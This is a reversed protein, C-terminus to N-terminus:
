GTGPSPATFGALGGLGLRQEIAAIQSVGLEFGDGRFQEREIQEFEESTERLDHAPMSKKWAQFIVTDEIATHKEYMRAFSDLAHAVAERDSGAVAGSRSKEILYRNIERGRDHQQVLTDVLQAAPGGAKRVAPFVRQEELKREHYDEGFTRFLNAADALAGADFATGARLRPALERYVILVRRLVGHERMLDETASVDEGAEGGGCSALLALSAAAAGTLLAARRDVPDPM